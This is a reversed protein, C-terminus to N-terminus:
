ERDTEKTTRAAAQTAEYTRSSMLGAQAALMQVQMLLATHEKLHEEVEARLEKANTWHTGPSALCIAAIRMRSAVLSLERIVAGMPTCDPYWTRGAVEEGAMPDPQLVRYTHWGNRASRVHELPQIHTGKGIVRYLIPSSV